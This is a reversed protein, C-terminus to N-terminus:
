DELAKAPEAGRAAAAMLAPTLHRKLFPEDSSGRLNPGYVLLVQVVAGHLHRGGSLDVVATPNIDLASVLLEADEVPCAGELHIVGNELRVTM